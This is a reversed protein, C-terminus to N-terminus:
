APPLDDVDIEPEARAARRARRPARARPRQRALHASLAEGDRRRQVASPSAPPAEGASRRSFHASSSRCIRAASDSRPSRSRSSTSDSSSIRASRAPAVSRGCTATRRPWFASTSRVDRPERRGRARRRARPRPPAQGAPRSRLEGIEDLFLTGGNAEAFLGAGTRTPAPSRAAARARVARERPAGGPAGRLEGHRASGEGRAGRSTSRACSSRGQRHRDRGHRAGARGRQRRAVVLTSVERLGGHRGVIRRSRPGKASRRRPASRAERQLRADALARGLFLGLEDVKFPKTLYHYAGRRISEVGTDVASYATM